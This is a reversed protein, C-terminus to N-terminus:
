HFYPDVKEPVWKVACIIDNTLVKGSPKGESACKAQVAMGDLSYIISPSM